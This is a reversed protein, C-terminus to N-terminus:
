SVNDPRDDKLPLWTEAEREGLKWWSNFRPLVASYGVPCVIDTEGARVDMTGLGARSHQMVFVPRRVAVTDEPLEM